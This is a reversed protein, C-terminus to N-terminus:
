KAQVKEAAEIESWSPARWLHLIGDTTSSALISGDPSFETRNLLDGGDVEFTILDLKSAYDWVKVAEKGVSSTAFRKMDRAFGISHVSLMHGKVTALEQFNSADWFRAVGPETAIAFVKHDPSFQVDFASEWRLSAKEESGTVTQRIIVSHEPALMLAQSGDFSSAFFQSRTGNTWCHIADGSLLDWYTVVQVQRDRKIELTILQPVGAVCGVPQSDPGVHIERVRTRMELDWLTVVRDEPGASIFRTDGSIYHPGSRGVQLIQEEEQFDLGHWRTVKGERDVCIVSHSDPTFRWDELQKPLTVMQHQEHNRRIDWKALLGDKSGSVLTTNDPLLALKWVEAQHGRLVGLPQQSVIDWLRITQDASASALTKGDPWFVCSCVWAQHGELRGVQKGSTVSWLKIDSDSFGAGSALIEGDPSFTLDTLVTDGTSLKTWKEKGTAADLVKIQNPFVIYAVLRGDTSLAVQNQFIQSNLKPAEFNSLVEGDEVRWIVVQPPESETAALIKTGDGSVALQGPREELPLSRVLQKRGVDWLQIGFPASNDSGQAGALALFGQKPCFALRRTKFDSAVGEIENRTSVDWVRCRASFLGSAALWRGDTSTALGLVPEGLKGYTDVADSKCFQWLYRWEWGRLDEQGQSPRNQNLLALARGVNNLHLAQQALNIDSAYARQRAAFAQAQAQARMDSENAQAQLARQANQEAQHRLSAGQREARTARLAQWSSVAIGLVLVSAILAAASFAVLNRRVLKQFKYAASPPRAVVPENALHRQIEMALGNATEYRRTRDKELCKMAIWDLDGKLQHLLKSTDASRRKATTTLEERPLNALRTSPRAPEKERITRRMADLGQSMLEKPEFPTRGVLLEYLLVGLSYIDSRTDIDLGSLEAQEPSMYAPTGIFQQLQTYVTKDTLQQQTAKAIGFDIVKPVPVGDHLTVLINSPKIDRHIIGKQHAHQIAQCVKVFLELREKTTLNNQDCYQTIPIGRVLEMVFFPRGTETSGADFVKAINSHDMMALAQREAEFRAVVAKTDMGLKIVKLAVRRRVPETQEAVYVVGCGGEGIKELLKYRGLTEGISEDPPEEPLELKLTPEATEPQTAATNDAALLAEIRQRLTSDVACVGDLFIIRQAPSLERARRIISEERGETPVM